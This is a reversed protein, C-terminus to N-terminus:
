EPKGWSATLTQRTVYSTDISNCWLRLMMLVAESDNVVHDTECVNVHCTLDYGLLSVAYMSFCAM